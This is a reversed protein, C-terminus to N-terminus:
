VVEYNIESYDKQDQRRGFLTQLENARKLSREHSRLDAAELIELFYPFCDTLLTPVGIIMEAGLDEVIYFELCIPECYHMNDKLLQLMFTTKEKIRMM